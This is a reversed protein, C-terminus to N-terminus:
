PPPAADLTHVGKHEVLGWGGGKRVACPRVPSCRVALLHALPSSSSSLPSVPSPAEQWWAVSLLKFFAFDRHAERTVLLLFLLSSPPASNPSTSYM